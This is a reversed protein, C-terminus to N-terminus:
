LDDHWDYDDLRTGYNKPVYKTETPQENTAHMITNKRNKKGIVEYDPTESKIDRWEQQLQLATKVKKAKPIGTAREESDTLTEAKASGKLAGRTFQLKDFVAAVYAGLPMKNPGIPRCFEDVCNAPKAQDKSSV